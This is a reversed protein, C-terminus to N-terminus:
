HVAKLNALGAMLKKQGYKPFTVTVEYDAGAHSIKEVTGIGFKFHKVLDGEKFDLSINQPAPIEKKLAAEYAKHQQWIANKVRMEPLSDSSKKVEEQKILEKPLEEIFRSVRYYVREGRFSRANAYTLYLKKKARTIGVYYLRREEEISDERGSQISMYSPFLGEELGTIFVFPFELGKASHLTMLVVANDGENYNDIDAVLAVEELFGALSIEEANKDYDAAKSVFERINQIRDRAEETNEDELEKLYGTRILLEEMLECISKSQVAEAQLTGILDAFEKLKAAARGFMSVTERDRIVEYLNMHNAAAFEEVKSITTAGIGRKPVNIIRKLSLDDNPNLIVRLYALIDKIEKREYFRISGFLRYPISYRVLHEELVRSQANTRYLVAFDKYARGEKAQKDIERVVYEAEDHEDMCCKLEILDGQENETWLNKQKRGYNNKIVSNAAELIVKTSRYNQELKVVRANKFDKEFDLINRINAGRWGYISQDDDGVVCINNHAAALLSVLKYQATNTDQYEDVLIYQFKNQYYELVDPHFKFLEVTKLIIDDFDLANNSELKKQYLKYIKAYKEGRYDGQNRKEYEAPNILEDKQRSIEGLVGSVPFNKENYNLEKLCEKILAKQDDTDYITFYRNYGLKEIDNRLIRVCASHFTSVWIDEAGEGVLLDVRERMERAAKNTFTIALIRWPDVGKEKILYAIRHTLARTKGSGAGALILLPGETCLVAEKQKSNLGELLSM